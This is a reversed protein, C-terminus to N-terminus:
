SLDEGEQLGLRAVFSAVMEPTIGEFDLSAEADQVGCIKILLEIAKLEGKAAKNVLSKMVLERKSISASRGGEQLELKQELEENALTSWDKAGKKKGTRNRKQNPFQTHKPPKGKGVEYDRAPKDNSTPRDTM